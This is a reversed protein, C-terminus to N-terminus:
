DILSVPIILLVHARPCIGSPSWVPLLIAWVISLSATYFGGYSRLLFRQLSFRLAVSQFMECSAYTPIKNLWPVKSPKQNRGNVLFFRGNFHIKDLWFKTLHFSWISKYQNKNYGYYFDINNHIFYLWTCIQTYFGQLMLNRTRGEWLLWEFYRHKIYAM